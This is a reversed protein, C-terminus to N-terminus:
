SLSTCIVVTPIGTSTGHISLVSIPFISSSGYVSHSGGRGHCQKVSVGKDRVSRTSADCRSTVKIRTTSCFLSPGPSVPFAPPPDKRRAFVEFLPSVVSFILHFMWKRLTHRRRQKSYDVRLSAVRHMPFTGKSINTGAERKMSTRLQLAHPYLRNHTPSM